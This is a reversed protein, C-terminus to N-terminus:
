AELMKWEGPRGARFCDVGAAAEAEAPEEVDDALVEGKAAADELEKAEEEVEGAAAFPVVNVAKRVEM